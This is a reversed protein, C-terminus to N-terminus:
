GGAEDTRETKENHETWQGASGWGAYRGCAPSFQSQISQATADGDPPRSPFLVVHLLLLLSEEKWAPARMAALGQITCRAM